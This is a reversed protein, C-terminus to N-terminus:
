STAGRGLPHGPVVAVDPKREIELTLVCDAVQDPM